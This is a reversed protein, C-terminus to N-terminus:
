KGGAASQPTPTPAPTAASKSARELHSASMWARLKDPNHSYVNHFIADLYNCEKMGDSVLRGIAATNKVGESDANDETEHADDIAGRDTQLQTAFDQPLGKATFKAVRAAKIAKTAADDAPDVILNGIFADATTLLTHPNPAAPAPFLAAYSPDDQALARATRTINQVDLRLADILVAAPAASGGKQGAKAKDLGNIVANLNTLHQPADTGAVDAANAQTFDRVRGFKDYRAFSYDDM